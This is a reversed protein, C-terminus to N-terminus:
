NLDFKPGDLARTLMPVPLFNSAPGRASWLSIDFRYKNFRICSLAGAFYIVVIRVSNPGIGGLETGM